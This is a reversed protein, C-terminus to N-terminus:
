ISYDNETSLSCGEVKKVNQTVSDPRKSHIMPLSIRIKLQRHEKKLIQNMSRFIEEAHTGPSFKTILYIRESPTFYEGMFSEETWYKEKLMTAIKCGAETKELEELADYVENFEKTFIPRDYMGLELQEAHFWDIDQMRADLEATDIGNFIGHEIPLNASFRVSIDGVQIDWNETLTIPVQYTINAEDRVRHIEWNWQLPDFTLMDKLLLVELDTTLLGAGRLRECLENQKGSLELYASQLKEGLPGASRFSKKPLPDEASVGHKSPNTEQACYYAAEYTNMKYAGFFEDWEIHLDCKLQDKAFNRTYPMTFDNRGDRFHDWYSTTTNDQIARVQQWFTEVVDKGEIGLYKFTDFLKDTSNM